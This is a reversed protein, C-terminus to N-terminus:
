IGLARMYEIDDITRQAHQLAPTIEANDPEPADFEDGRQHATGEPTHRQEHPGPTSGVAGRSRV